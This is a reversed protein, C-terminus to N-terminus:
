SINRNQAKLMIKEKMAIDLQLTRHNNKTQIIKQRVTCHENKDLIVFLFQGKSSVEILRGVYCVVAYGTNRKLLM